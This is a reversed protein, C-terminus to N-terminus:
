SFGNYVGLSPVQDAGCSFGDMELFPILLILEHSSVLSVLDKLVTRINGEFGTIKAKAIYRIDSLTATENLDPM